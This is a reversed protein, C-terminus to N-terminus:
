QMQQHTWIMNGKLHLHRSNLIILSPKRCFQGHFYSVDMHFIKTSPVLLAILSLSSFPEKMREILGCPDPAFHLFYQIKDYINKSPKGQSILVYRADRSGTNRQAERIASILVHLRVDFKSLISTEVLFEIPGLKPEWQTLPLTISYEKILIGVRLDISKLKQNEEDTINRLLPYWLTFMFPLSLKTSHLCGWYRRSLDEVGRLCAATSLVERSILILLFADFNVIDAYSCRPWVLRVCISIDEDKLPLYRRWIRPLGADQYACVRGEDWWTCLGGSGEWKARDDFFPIEKRYIIMTISCVTVTTTITFLHMQFRM